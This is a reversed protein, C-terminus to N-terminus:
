YNTNSPKYYSLKNSIYLSKTYNNVDDLITGCFLSDERGRYQEEEIYKYKLLLSSKVSSQSHHIRGYSKGVFRACGSFCRRLCGYYCKPFMSDGMAGKSLSMSDGKLSNESLTPYTTGNCDSEKVSIDNVNYDYDYYDHLLINVDYNKFGFQIAELRQHHMIDDADIFTIINPTNDDLLLKNIAINRNQSANLMNEHTIIILKFAESIMSTKIKEIIELDNPVVHGESDSFETALPSHPVAHGEALPSHPVHRGGRVSSCSIVVVQPQVTNRRISDLLRPIYKIHGSYCPIVVGITPNQM